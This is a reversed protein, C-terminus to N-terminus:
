QRATIQKASWLVAYNKGLRKYYDPKKNKPLDELYEVIWGQPHEHAWQWRHAPLLNILPQRLRGPFQFQDEYQGIFAIPMGANQYRALRQSLETTDKFQAQIQVVGTFYIIVFLCNIATIRKIQKTLNIPKPYVYALGLCFIVFGWVFPVQSLWPKEQLLHATPSLWATSSMFLLGVGSMCFTLLSQTRGKILGPYHYLLYASLLSFIPFLPLLYRTQKGSIISLLLCAPILASLLFRISQDQSYSRIRILQRWLPPWLLWPFFVLPLSPLYWWWPRAHAFSQIARGLNQKLFIAHAYDPGGKLAAPIAWALVIAVTVLLSGALYAYYRSRSSQKIITSWYPALLAPPLTFVLIVPGKTLIGLGNAIAYLWWASLKKETLCLAYLASIVFFTLILDFRLIPIWSAWIICGLLIMPALQACPAQEPWLLRAFRQVIFLTSFAFLAPLMRPWIDNPSFLGWGMNLLWFLLPPKHAYPAGNLFPVWWEHNLWMEWAVGAYRTEDLPLLPRTIIAIIM